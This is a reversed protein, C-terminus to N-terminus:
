KDIQSNIGAQPHLTWGEAGFDNECFGVLSDTGFLRLNKLSKVDM